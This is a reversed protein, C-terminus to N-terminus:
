FRVGLLMGAMLITGTVKAESTTAPDGGPGPSLTMTRPQLVQLQGYVDLTFPPLPEHLELGSGLTIAHRTADFYRTPLSVVQKSARDYASSAGTSDPMPTPELFYGARLHATLAHTVPIGRDVGVHLSVTDHFPVVTPTLAGCMPNDPPCVITPELPGPYDSWKKWTAGLALTLARTDYALEFALQATDYQALGAINFVPINLTSLKTGDIAVSFRAALKGRYAAGLRLAHPPGFPLDVSLGLIPAYTAILQDEVKSGVRGTADTAVVVSGEIQALAAFGAGIRVGYGVDLGFGLRAALSQTRDPVVLFQPTEPYLIRGRVLIDTPTYFALAAGVRDRLIGGFPIPLGLGLM